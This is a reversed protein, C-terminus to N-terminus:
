PLPGPTVAEALWGRVWRGIPPAEPLVAQPLEPLTGSRGYSLGILLAVTPAKKGCANGLALRFARANNPPICRKSPPRCRLSRPFSTVHSRAASGESGGGRKEQKELGARSLQWRM